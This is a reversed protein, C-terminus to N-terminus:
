SSAPGERPRPIRQTGQICRANLIPTSHHHHPLSSPSPVVAQRGVQVAHDAIM